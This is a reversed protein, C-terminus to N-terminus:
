LKLRVDGGRRAEQGRAIETRLQEDIAADRRNLSAPVVSHRASRASPPPRATSLTACWLTPM